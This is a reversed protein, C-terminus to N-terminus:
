QEKGTLRRMADPDRRVNAVVHLLFAAFISFFFAGATVVIVMLARSPGAKFDPVDAMELIQFTQEDSEAGIRAVEYQQTLTEYIRSQVRLERDLRGFRAALEPIDESAIGTDILHLQQEVGENSGRFYRRELEAVAKRLQELEARLRRSTPDELAAVAQHTALEIEKQIVRGRLEALASLQERVFGEADITGYQRQFAQIRQELEAIGREVEAIQEGLMDRRQAERNVGISAFREDLLELMRNVVDTAFHPDTSRYSLEIIGTEAEFQASTNERVVRRSNHRPAAEIGHREIINFEEVIADVIRNTSTLRVVLGGYGAAESPLSLGPIDGFQRLAAAAAGAQGVNDDVLILAQPEFYNPMPSAQPPLYISLLAYVVSVTGAVFTMGVILYRFRWLVGIVDILDIEDQPPEQHQQPQHQDM